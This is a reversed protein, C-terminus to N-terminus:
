HTLGLGTPADALAGGSDGVGAELFDVVGDWYARRYGSTYAERLAQEVEADRTSATAGRIRAMGASSVNRAGALLNSLRLNWRTNLAGQIARFLDNNM